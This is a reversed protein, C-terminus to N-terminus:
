EEEAAHADIFEKVAKKSKLPEENLPKAPENAAAVAFNKGVKFVKLDKAEAGEFDESVDEGLADAEVEETVEPETEEEVPEEYDGVAARDDSAKRVVDHSSHATAWSAVTAAEKFKRPANPDNTGQQMMRGKVDAPTGKDMTADQRAGEDLPTNVVTRSRGEVEAFKNPFMTALDKDSEIEGHQGVIGQGYTDDHIGSLVRFTRMTKTQPEASTKAKQRPLDGGRAQIPKDPKNLFKPDETAPTESTQQRPQTM